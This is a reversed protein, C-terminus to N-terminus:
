RGVGDSGEDKMSDQSGASQDESNIKKMGIHESANERGTGESMKM